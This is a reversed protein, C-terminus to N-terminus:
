RCGGDIFSRAEEIKAFAVETGSVAYLSGFRSGVVRIDRGKYTEVVSEKQHELHRRNYEDVGVSEILQARDEPNDWDM